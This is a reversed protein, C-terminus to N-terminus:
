AAAKLHDALSGLLVLGEASGLLEEAARDPHPMLGFVNGQRNRIGAIANESGNLNAEPTTEGAATAYRLVVDGSRELEELLGPPAIYRGDHHSIPMRLVDGPRARSTLVTEANEIRLWVDRCIFKLGANRALAGPLLGAETLVQFGNCIGVVLGGAEAHRKVAQMIPSFRAIAGARLYDGYAFGGPLVVLRTEPPLRSDKHWVFGTRLGLIERFVWLVDQDCNSGPFVVVSVSM